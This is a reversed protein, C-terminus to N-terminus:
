LSVHGAPPRALGDGLRVAAQCAVAEDTHSPRVAPAPALLESDLM